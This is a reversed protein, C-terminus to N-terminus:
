WHSCNVGTVKKLAWIQPLCPIIYFMMSNACVAMQSSGIQLITQMSFSNNQEDILMYIDSLQQIYCNTPRIGIIFDLHQEMM